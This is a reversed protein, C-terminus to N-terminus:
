NKNPRFPVVTGQGPVHFLFDFGFKQGYDRLWLVAVACVAIIFLWAM